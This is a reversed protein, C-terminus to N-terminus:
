GRREAVAIFYTTERAQLRRYPETTVGGLMTRVMGRLPPPLRRLIRERRPDDLTSSLAVNATIDRLSTLTLGARGLHKRLFPAVVDPPKRRSDALVFVGGPRLVRAVEGLFAPGFYVHSAEVNLVVDFAADPLRLDTADGEVVVLGFRRRSAIVAPLAKEVGIGLRPRFRRQLFALGGGLGSSIELLTGGAIREAGAALAVQRYLELQFCEEADEYAGEADLHAYGYNFCSLRREFRALGFVLDYYRAYFAAGQRRQLWQM